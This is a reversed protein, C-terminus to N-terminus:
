GPRPTERPRFAIQLLTNLDFALIGCVVEFLDRQHESFYNVNPSKICNRKEGEAALLKSSVYRAPHSTLDSHM